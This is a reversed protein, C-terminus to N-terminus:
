RYTPTLKGETVNRILAPLLQSLLTALDQEDIHCRDECHDQVFNKLAILAAQRLGSSNAVDDSLLLLQIPFGQTNRLQLLHATAAHTSAPDLTGLLVKAVNASQM